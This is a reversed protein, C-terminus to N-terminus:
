WLSGEFCVSFPPYINWHWSEMQICCSELSHKLATWCSCPVMEAINMKMFTKYNRLLIAYSLQLKPANRCLILLYRQCWGVDLLKKVNKQRAKNNNIQRKYKARWTTIDFLWSMVLLQIFFEVSLLWCM